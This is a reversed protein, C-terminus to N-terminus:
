TPAATFFSTFDVALVGKEEPVVLGPPDKAPDPPRLGAGGPGSAFTLRFGDLNERSRVVFLHVGLLERALRPQSLFFTLARANEADRLLARLEDPPVLCAADVDGPLERGTVFSGDILIENVRRGLDKIRDLVYMFYRWVKQRQENYVFRAEVEVLTCPHMGPPLWYPVPEGILDPIPMRISLDFDSLFGFV